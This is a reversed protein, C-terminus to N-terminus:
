PSPFYSLVTKTHRWFPVAGAAAVEAIRLVRCTEEHYEELELPVALHDALWLPLTALPQGPTLARASAELLCADADAGV